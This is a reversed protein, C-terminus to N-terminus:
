SGCALHWRQQVPQLGEGRSSLPLAKRLAGSLHQTSGWTAHPRQVMQNEVVAEVETEKMELQWPVVM